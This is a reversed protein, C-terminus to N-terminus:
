CGTRIARLKEAQFRATLPQRRVQGARQAPILTRLERRVLREGDVGGPTAIVAQAWLEALVDGGENVANALQVLDRQIDIPRFQTGFVDLTQLGRRHRGAVSWRGIGAVRRSLGGRRLDRAADAQTQHLFDPQVQVFALTAALLSFRLTEPNEFPDLEDPFAHLLFTNGMRAPFSSPIAHGDRM